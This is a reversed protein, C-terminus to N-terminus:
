IRYYERYWAVFSRLGEEIPTAPAFGTDRMLDSVDAFTELVDGPQLPLMEKQVTRGLEKELLTVVRTLEEPRHNGVNYIRAPVDDVASTPVRAVLKSVVSRVD